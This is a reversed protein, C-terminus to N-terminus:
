LPSVGTLELVLPQGPYEQRVLLHPAEARLFLVSPDDPDGMEVRWVDFRGAPTDVVELGRVRAEMRVPTGRLVDLLAFRIRIGEELPAMALAYEDMGPFLLDERPLDVEEPGGFRPPRDIQGLIRGDRVELAVGIRLPGDGQAQRLSRPTFDTADFRLTTVQRGPGGIQSVSATAVWDPGRRELRYSATGVPTGDLLLDYRRVGEELTGPDASGAEGTVSLATAPDALHAETVPSDPIAPSALDASDAQHPHLLAPFLSGALAVAAALTWACRLGGAGRLGWAGRLIWPGALTWPGSLARAARTAGPM